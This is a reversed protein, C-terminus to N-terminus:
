FQRDGKGRESGEELLELPGRRKPGPVPLDNGCGESDGKGAEQSAALDGPVLRRRGPQQDAREGPM